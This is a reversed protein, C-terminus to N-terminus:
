SEKSIFTKVATEFEKYSQLLRTNEVGKSGKLLKRVLVGLENTVKTLRKISEERTDVFIEAEELSKGSRLESTAKLSGLVRSFRALDRTDYVVKSDTDRSGDQKKPGYLDNLLLSLHKKSYSVIELTKSDVELQIYSKVGARQLAEGLVWFDEGKPLKEGAEILLRYPVLFRRAQQKTM